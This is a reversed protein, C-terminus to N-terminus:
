RTPSAAIQPHALLIRAIQKLAHARQSTRGMDTFAWDPKPVVRWRPSPAEGSFKEGTASTRSTLPRPKLIGVFGTVDDVSAALLASVFIGRPKTCYSCGLNLILKMGVLALWFATSFSM